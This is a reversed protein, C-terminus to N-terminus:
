IVGGGMVGLSVVNQTGTDVLHVGLGLLWRLGDGLDGPVATWFVSLAAAGAWIWVSSFDKKAADGAQPTSKPIAMFAWIITVVTVVMALGSGRVLGGWDGDYDGVANGAVNFLDRAWENLQGGLRSPALVRLFGALALFAAVTNAWKRNGVGILDIVFAGVLM